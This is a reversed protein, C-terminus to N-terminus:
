GPDLFHDGIKKGNVSMEIHGLGSIFVTAKELPKQLSITKRFLPM